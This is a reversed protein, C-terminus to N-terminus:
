RHRRQIPSPSSVGGHKENPFYRPGRVLVNRQPNTARILRVSRSGSKLILSPEPTWNRVSRPCRWIPITTASPKSCCVRLLNEPSSPRALTAARKGAPVRILVCGARRNKRATASTAHRRSCPVSASKLFSWRSPRCPTRAQSPSCPQFFHSACRQEPYGM